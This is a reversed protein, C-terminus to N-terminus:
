SLSDAPKAFAGTFRECPGEEVVSRDNRSCRMSLNKQVQFRQLQFRTRIPGEEVVSRSHEHFRILLNGPRAVSM